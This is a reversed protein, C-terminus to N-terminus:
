TYILDLYTLSIQKDLLNAEMALKRLKNSKLLNVNTRDGISCFYTFVVKLKHKIM